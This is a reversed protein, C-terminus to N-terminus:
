TDQNNDLWLVPLAAKALLERIRHCQGDAILLAHTPFSPKNITLYNNGANNILYTKTYNFEMKLTQIYRYIMM